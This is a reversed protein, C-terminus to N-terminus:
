LVMFCFSIFAVSLFLMVLGSLSLSHFLVMFLNLRFAIKSFVYLYDLPAEFVTPYLCCQLMTQQQSATRSILSHFMAWNHIHFELYSCIFVGGEFCQTKEAKEILIATFLHILPNASISINEPYIVTLSHSLSVIDRQRNDSVNKHVPHEYHTSHTHTANYLIWVETEKDIWYKHIVM